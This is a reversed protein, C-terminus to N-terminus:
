KSVFRRARNSPVLISLIYPDSECFIMGSFLGIPDEQLLIAKRCGTDKNHSLTVQGCSLIATSSLM